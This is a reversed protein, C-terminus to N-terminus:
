VPFTMDKNLSLTSNLFHYVRLCVTSEEGYGTWARGEGGGEWKSLSSKWLLVFNLEIYGGRSIFYPLRDEAPGQHLGGEQHKGPVAM